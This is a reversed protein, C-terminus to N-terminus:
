LQCFSTHTLSLLLSVSVFLCLRLMCLLSCSTEKRQIKHSIMGGAAAKNLYLQCYFKYTNLSYLKIQYIYVNNIVVNLSILLDM